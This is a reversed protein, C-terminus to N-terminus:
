RMPPLSMTGNETLVIEVHQTQAEAHEPGYQQNQGLVAGDNVFQTVKGARSAVREPLRDLRLFLEAGCRRAEDTGSKRLDRTGSAAAACV